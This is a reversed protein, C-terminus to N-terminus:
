QTPEDTRFALQLDVEVLATEAINLAAPMALKGNHQVWVCAALLRLLDDRNM